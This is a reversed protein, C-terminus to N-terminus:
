SAQELYFQQIREVAWKSGRLKQLAQKELTHVRDRSMGMRRAVETMTRQESDILGFRLQIVRRERPTLISLCEELERKLVARAAQDSPTAADKDPLLDGLENEDDEGIPTAMSVPQQAARVLDEVQKPTMDMEMALEDLSPERDLEATLRRQVRLLRNFTEVAHVPMRILRGQDAIARTIAQRIWWTAYTSFKFGKRYDFKEVARMLGLNGEQILDLLPMGRNVYRKAISVVLRLNAEIMHGRALESGEEISRALEVEQAATLLKVQGIKRLYLRVADDLAAEETTAAAKTFDAAEAPNQEAPLDIDLALTALGGDLFRTLE